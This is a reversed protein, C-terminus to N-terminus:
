IIIEPPLRSIFQALHHFIHTNNTSLIDSATISTPLNCGLLASYLSKQFPILNPCEFLIHNLSAYQLNSTHFPCFPTDARGIHFLYFPLRNHGFRLRSLKMIISRSLDSLHTYWPKHPLHPQLSLYWSHSSTFSSSYSFAWDDRSSNQILLQIESLPLYKFSDRICM